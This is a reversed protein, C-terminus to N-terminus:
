ISLIYLYIRTYIRTFAVVHISFHLRRLGRFYNNIMLSGYVIVLLAAYELFPEFRVKRTFITLCHYPATGESSVLELVCHLYSVFIFIHFM